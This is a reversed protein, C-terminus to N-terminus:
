KFEGKNGHCNMGIARISCFERYKCRGCARRRGKQTKDYMGVVSTISHEPVLASNAGLILGLRKEAQTYFIIQSRTEIPFDGEGPSFRDDTYLGNDIARTIIDSNVMDGAREIIVKCCANFIREDLETYCLRERLADQEPKPGLTAAMLACHKARRMKEYLDKGKFIMMTGVLKIVPQMYDPPLTCIAPNFLKYAGRPKLAQLCEDIVFDIHEDLLDDHDVGTLDLLETVSTRDLQEIKCDVEI